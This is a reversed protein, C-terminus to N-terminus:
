KQDGEIAALLDKITRLADNPGTAPYEGFESGMAKWVPGGFEDCPVLSILAFAAKRLADVLETYHLERELFMAEDVIVVGCADCTNSWPENNIRGFDCSEIHSDRVAKMLAPHPKDTM